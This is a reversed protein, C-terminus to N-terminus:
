WAYVSLTSGVLNVLRRLFIGYEDLDLAYFLVYKIKMVCSNTEIKVCKKMEENVFFGM